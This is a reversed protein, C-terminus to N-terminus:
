KTKGKEKVTKEDMKKREEVLRPLLLELRGLESRVSQIQQDLLARKLQANEEAPNMAPGGEAGFAPAALLILLLIVHM